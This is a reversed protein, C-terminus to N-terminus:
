GTCADNWCLFSCGLRTRPARRARLCSRMVGCRRHGHFPPFRVAPCAGVFEGSSVLEGALDDADAGAVPDDGCVEVPDRADARQSRAGSLWFPNSLGPSIPDFRLYSFVSSAPRLIM